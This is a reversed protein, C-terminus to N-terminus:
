RGESLRLLISLSRTDLVSLLTELRRDGMCGSLM